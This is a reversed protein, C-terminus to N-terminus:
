VAAKSLRRITGASTAVKMGWKRVTTESRAVQGGPLPTLWQEVALNGNLHFRFRYSDRVQDVEVPGVAESMSGIFRTPSVQRIRWQRTRPPKGEEFVNQTLSLSGDPLIKGLGTTRSRYPKRMVVKVQSVMETDGEFFRLSLQERQGTAATPAQALLIVAALM